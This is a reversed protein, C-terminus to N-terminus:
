TTEHDGILAQHLGRAFWLEYNYREIGLQNLVRLARVTPRSVQAWLRADKSSLIQEAVSETVRRADLGNYWDRSWQSIVGAPMPHPGAEHGPYSQWPLSAVPTQFCTLWHNYLHHNLFSNMPSAMVISLFDPDFFPLQLEVGSLDIGEFYEYLHRMQDNFLYFLFLRRDGRRPAIGDFASRVSIVALQRLREARSANILRSRRKKLSPFLELLVEDSLDEQALAVKKETMYVHGLGVSGGHGSWIARAWGKSESQPPFSERAVFGWDIFSSKLRDAPNRHHSTHQTGFAAAVMGSVADNASGPYSGSFTRVKRGVDLLGGVVCRSDLGGSLFADEVLARSRRRIALIFAEYLRACIESEEAERSPIANWDFYYASHDTVPDITLLEGPRLVRVDRYVTRAGLGQGLHIQEALGQEDVELPRGILARLTRLNTAFVSITPDSYIYLPRLALKDACFRLTRSERNWSVGVFCGKTRALVSNADAGSALAACIRAASEAPDNSIGDDACILPDGSVWAVSTGDDHFTRGPQFAGNDFYGIFGSQESIFHIKDRPNRSLVARALELKGSLNQIVASSPSAAKRLFAGCFGTM